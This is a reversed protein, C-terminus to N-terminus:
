EVYKPDLSERERRVIRVMCIGTAGLVPVITAVLFVISWGAADGGGEQFSKACTSCALNLSDLIM